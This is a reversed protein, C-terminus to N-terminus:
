LRKEFDKLLRKMVELKEEKTLGKGNEILWQEILPQYYSLGSDEVEDDGQTVLTETKEKEVLHDWSVYPSELVQPIQRSVQAYVEASITFQLYQEDYKTLADLPIKDVDALLGLRKHFKLNPEYKLLSILEPEGDRKWYSDENVFKHILVGKPMKEGFDLTIPSGSYWCVGHKDMKQSKHIDGLFVGVLSTDKLLQGIDVYHTQNRPPKWGVDTTIGACCEHMVLFNSPYTELLQKIQDVSYQGFPVLLLKKDEIWKPKGVAINDPAMKILPSVVSQLSNPDSPDYPQRDHNGDIFFFDFNPYTSKLEILPYLINIIPLIFEERDTNENRDFIDGAQIFWVEVNPDDKYKSLIDSTLSLIASLLLRQQILYDSYKRNRGLHWDATHIVIRTKM